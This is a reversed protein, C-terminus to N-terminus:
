VGACLRVEYKKQAEAAAQKAHAEKRGLDEVRKLINFYRQDAARAAARSKKESDRIAALQRTFFESRESAAQLSREAAALSSQLETIKQSLAEPDDQCAPPSPPPLVTM